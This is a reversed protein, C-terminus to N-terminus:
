NKCAWEIDHTEPLPKSPYATRFQGRFLGEIARGAQLQQILSFGALLFIM